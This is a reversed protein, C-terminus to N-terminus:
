KDVNEAVRFYFEIESTTKDLDNVMKVFEKDFIEDKKEAFLQSIAICSPFSFSHM